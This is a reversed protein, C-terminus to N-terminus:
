ADNGGSLAAQAAEWAQEFPLGGRSEAAMYGGYIAHGAQLWFCDVVAFGAEELWVLQDFLPSPKDFDPDPHRFLNWRAQRYKEYLADSGTQKLSAARVARDLTAACLENAESRQPLMIDAILLAGRESLRARMARFLAQKEGGDLHHVCLSSVVVDAGQVVAYWEPRKMDFAAVSGREGFPKLREATEARMSDEIDLALLSAEPFARLIAHALRGEGSALEVVRFRDDPAFPILTLLAAIQETRAPVVIPAIERYLNSIDETWQPDTDSM